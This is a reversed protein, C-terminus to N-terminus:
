PLSSAYAHPLRSAQNQASYFNVDALLRISIPFCAALALPLDFFSQSTTTHVAFQLTHLRFFSQRAFAIAPVLM